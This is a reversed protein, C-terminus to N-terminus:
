AVFDDTGYFVSRAGPVSHLLDAPSAVLIARARGGLQRVAGRITRRVQAQVVERLGPRALGPVTLPTLRMIEDTVPRLRPRRLAAATARDRLPSVWSYPPDVWLVPVTRSLHMAVHRESMWVGDWGTGAAVVVYEDAWREDAWRGNAWRGNAWR